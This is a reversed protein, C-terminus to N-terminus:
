LYEEVLNFTFNRLQNYAPSQEQFIIVAPPDVEVQWDRLPLDPLLVEPKIRAPHDALALSWAAQIIAPLPGILDTQRLGKSEIQDSIVAALQRSGTRSQKLFIAFNL